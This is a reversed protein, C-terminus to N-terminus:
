NVNHIKAELEAIRKNLQEITKDKAKVQNKLQEVDEIYSEVEEYAIRLRQNYTCSPNSFQKFFMEKKEEMTMKSRKLRTLDTLLTQM